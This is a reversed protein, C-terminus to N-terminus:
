VFFNNVFFHVWIFCYFYILAGCTYPFIMQDNHRFCCTCYAQFVNIRHNHRCNCSCIMLWLLKCWSIDGVLYQSFSHQNANSANSCSIIVDNIKQQMHNLSGETCIQCAEFRKHFDVIEKLSPTLQWRLHVIRCIYYMYLIYRPIQVVLIVLLKNVVWLCADVIWMVINMMTINIQIFLFLLVLLVTKM